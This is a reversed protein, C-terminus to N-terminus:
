KNKQRQMVQAKWERQQELMKRIGMIVVKNVRELAKNLKKKANTRLRAM